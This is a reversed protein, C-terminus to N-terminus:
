GLLAELEEARARRQARLEDPADPDGRLLSRLEELEETRRYRIEARKSRPKVLYQTRGDLVRRAKVKGEPLEHGVALLRLSFTPFDPDGDFNGRVDIRAEVIVHGARWPVQTEDNPIRRVRKARGGATYDVVVTTTALLHEFEQRRRAVARLDLWESLLRKPGGADHIAVSVFRHFGSAPGQVGRTDDYVSAVDRLAAVFQALLEESAPEALRRGVLCTVTLKEARKILDNVKESGVLEGKARGPRVL